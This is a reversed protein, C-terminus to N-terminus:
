LLKHNSIIYDGITEKNIEAANLSMIIEEVDKIKLNLDYVNLKNNKIFLDFEESFNEDGMRHFFIAMDIGGRPFFSRLEAIPHDMESCARLFTKESWGDFIVHKLALNVLEEKLNESSEKVHDLEM